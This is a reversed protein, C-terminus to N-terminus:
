YKVLICQKVPFNSYLHVECDYLALRARGIAQESESEIMYLQIEQLLPDSYTMIRFSYNNREVKRIALTDDTNIDGLMMAWLKYVYEPRHFTGIVTLNQGAFCNTGQAAGLYLEGYKAYDKFTIINSDDEHKARLGKILDPNEALCSRSYSCDHHLYVKGKYELEGLDKFYTLRRGFVERYLRESATASLIVCNCDPLPVKCIFHVEDKDYRHYFCRAKLAPFVASNNRDGIKKIIALTELDYMERGISDIVEYGRVHAIRELREIIDYKLLDETNGCNNREFRDKELMENIDPISISKIQIMATLIDEDIIVNRANLYDEKMNLLRAHTTLVLKGKFKRIGEIDSLYRKAAPEDCDRLFYSVSRENGIAYLHKVHDAMQKNLNKLLDYITPTVFCEIGRKAAEEAVAQMLMANPLAVITQRDSNAAMELYAYTKGAGTPAKIVKVGPMKMAKDLEYALETRMQELPKYKPDDNLKFIKKSATKLTFVANAEHDCTDAYPCYEDCSYAHYNNRVASDIQAMKREIDGYIDSYKNFVAAIADRGGKIYRLNTALGFWENHELRKGCKFDNLLMCITEGKINTREPKPKTTKESPVTHIDVGEKYFFIRINSSEQANVMYSYLTISKYDDNKECQDNPEDQILRPNGLLSLADYSLIDSVPEVAFTNKRLVVRSKKSIQNLKRVKNAKDYKDLFCLTSILLDYISFTERHWEVNKGPYYLKSFDKSANDVEPFITCLCHQILTALDKDYVEQECLFVLRFKSWNVSSSTEYMIAIPLKYEEARQKATEIDLGEDFDLAFFQISRLENQSKHDGIFTAPCFVQMNEIAKALDEISLRCSYQPILKSIKKTQEQMYAKTKGKFSEPFVSVNYFM